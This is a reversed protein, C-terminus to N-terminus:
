STPALERLVPRGGVDTLPLFVHHTAPDVSVSHANPGANGQALKRPEGKSVDYVALQGSEAAVYLRGLGPDFALVDPGDGTGVAAGARGTALDLAELVGNGDCAVYVRHGARGNLQEGHANECGQLQYRASVTGNSPDIAAVTSDSGVAVFVLNATPDYQSNGISGGLKVQGLTRMSRADIVTDGTGQEDSVFVRGSTPAYTLGDPYTGGDTRGAVQMSDTDVAVVQNRGTASAFLRHLDPALALGHVEEIGPITAMVRAAATDVVVVQSAGLHAIYLRHSAPDFVQYDWRSTDGPLPLDRVVRYGSIAASPPGSQFPLSCAGGALLLALGAHILKM